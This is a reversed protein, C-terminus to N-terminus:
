SSCSLMSCGAKNKAWDPRKEAFQDYEPQEDYPNELVKQLQKLLTYDQKEALEIAQQALYNRLVYKPNVENMAKSIDSRHKNSNDRLQSYRELWNFLVSKYDATIENENYFCTKLHSLWFSKDDPLDALRRYFITMDTEIMMLLNELDIFLSRELSSAGETFADVPLEIGLKAAMMTQWQQQYNKSFNNLAKELPEVDKIL